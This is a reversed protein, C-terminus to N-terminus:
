NIAFGPVNGPYPKVIDKKIAMKKIKENINHSNEMLHWDAYSMGMFFGCESCKIWAEYQDPFEAHITPHGCQPCILKEQNISTTVESVRNHPEVPSDGHVPTHDGTKVDSSGVHAAVRSDDVAKKAKGKPNDTMKTKLEKEQNSKLMFIGRPMKKVYTQVTAPKDATLIFAPLGVKTM